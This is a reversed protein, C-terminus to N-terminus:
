FQKEIINALQPFTYGADNLNAIEDFYFRAGECEEVEVRVQPNKVSLEAWEKVSEPLFESEDDFYFYDCKQLQSPVIEDETKITDDGRFEWKLNNEKSYLDCLVGLCCYGQGSYLKGDGQEYEGSRLASIWKQKIEPNMKNLLSM